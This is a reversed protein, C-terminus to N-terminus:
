AVSSWTGDPNRCATGRLAQARGDIYIKHTYDRCDIRGRKYPKSPIVEGYRGSDPNRWGIGEGTRGSELADFEAQQALLRDQKDLARGIESGVIGGVVAGIATAAIRGNGKAVANGLLGGTVAGVVLGTDAKNPGDPGCASLSLGLIIACVGSGLMKIKGGNLM